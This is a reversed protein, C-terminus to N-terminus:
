VLVSVTMIDQTERWRGLFDQQLQRVQPSFHCYCRETQVHIHILCPRNDSSGLAGWDCYELSRCCYCVMQKKSNRVLSSNPKFPNESGIDVADCEQPVSTIQSVTSNNTVSHTMYKPDKTDISILTGNTLKISPCNASDNGHNVGDNGHNASDNGHNVSNNDNGHNESDNGHNASDNGHNVSDNGHNVSDNGHTEHCYCNATHHKGTLSKDCKTLNQSTHHVDYHLRYPVTRSDYVSKIITSSEIGSHCAVRIKNFPNDLSLCNQDKTDRPRKRGPRHTWEAMDATSDMKGLGFEKRFPLQKLQSRGPNM